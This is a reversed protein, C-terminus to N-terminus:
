TDLIAPRISKLQEVTQAKEILPDKTIDRLQQKKKAIDNQLQENKSEIARMYDVDLKELLPKREERLINRYIDRATPMDVTIM